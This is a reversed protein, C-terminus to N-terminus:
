DVNNTIYSDSNPLYEFITGSKYFKCNTVTVSQFIFIGKILKYKKM